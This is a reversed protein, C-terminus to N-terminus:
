FINGTTLLREVELGSLPRYEGEFACDYERGDVTDYVISKIKGTLVSLGPPPDFHVDAEDEQALECFFHEAHAGTYGLVKVTRENAFLLVHSPQSWDPDNEHPTAAEIFSGPSLNFHAISRVDHYRRLTRGHVQVTDGGTVEVGVISNEPHLTDFLISRVVGVTGSKMGPSAKIAIVINDLQIM